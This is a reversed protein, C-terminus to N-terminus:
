RNGEFRKLIGKFDRSLKKSKKGLPFSVKQTM